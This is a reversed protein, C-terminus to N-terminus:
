ISSAVKEVAFKLASDPVDDLMIDINTYKGCSIYIPTCLNQFFHFIM